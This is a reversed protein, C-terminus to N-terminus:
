LFILIIKVLDRQISNEQSQSRTLSHKKEGAVSFANKVHSNKIEWKYSSFPLNSHREQM